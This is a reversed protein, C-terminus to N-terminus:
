ITTSKAHERPAAIAFRDLAVLYALVDRHFDSSNVPFYDPFLYQGFRIICEVKLAIKFDKEIALNDVWRAEFIAKLDRSLEIRTGATDISQKILQALKSRAQHKFALHKM